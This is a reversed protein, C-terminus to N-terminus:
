LILIKIHIHYYWKNKYSQIPASSPVWTGTVMSTSFWSFYWSLFPLKDCFTKPTQENSWLNWYMRAPQSPDVASLRTSEKARELASGSTTGGPINIWVQYSEIINLSRHYIKVIVNKRNTYSIKNLQHQIGLHVQTEQEM